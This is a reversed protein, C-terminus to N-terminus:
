SFAMSANQPLRHSEDTSPHNNSYLEKSSITPCTALLSYGPPIHLHSTKVKNLNIIYGDLAKFARAVVLGLKSDSTKKNLSGTLLQWEQDFVICASLLRFLYDANLSEEYDNILDIIEEALEIYEMIFENNNFFYINMLSQERQCQQIYDTFIQQVTELLSPLLPIDKLAYISQCRNIVKLGQTISDIDSVNKDALLPNDLLRDLVLQYKAPASFKEKYLLCVMSSFYKFEAIITTDAAALLSLIDRSDLLTHYHFKYKLLRRESQKLKEISGFAPVFDSLWISEDTTVKEALIICIKLDDMIQKIPMTNALTKSYLRNMYSLIHLISDLTPISPSSELQMLAKFIADIEDHLTQRCGREVKDGLFQKLLRIYWM